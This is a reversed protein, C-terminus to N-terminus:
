SKQSLLHQIDGMVQEIVVENKMKQQKLQKTDIPQGFEITTRRFLKYQSSIACPIIYAEGRMAIMAAGAQGKGLEEGKVRTGEPFIGIGEGEKLLNISTRVMAMDAKGRAVPIAHLLKLFYRVIPYRFLTDKAICHLTRPCSSVLIVPDHMSKHNACIVIAGQQPIHQQGIIKLGYFLQYYWRCLTTVIRYFM